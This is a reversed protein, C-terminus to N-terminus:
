AQPPLKRLRIRNRVSAFYEGDPEKANNGGTDRSSLRLRTGNVRHLHNVTTGPPLRPARLLNSHMRAGTVAYITLEAPADSM